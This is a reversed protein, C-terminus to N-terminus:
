VFMQQLLGKKYTKTHEIKQNVIAINKDIASLFNAIKIQEELSPIKVDIDFFDNVGINLLGHNRAGEQAVKEIERNQLGSEFYQEIFDLSAKKNFRFCIYLTSVVGSDYRNLRKIAGMPYGNSYSKNYAFDNKEILYYGTLNKASVSKNFYELQSILGLQASITLVNQNDVKNKTKVREAINSLQHKKWDPFSDGNEDKFRLKQKFIKQIVGKKFQELLSKKKELSQIHNDISSLFNAIKQQEEFPPFNFKLASFDSKNILPVAQVGSLHKINKGKKELLSYIFNNSFDVKATLSNIQQNTIVEVGAQGVKGITSGIAVFLVSGSKVLRGKSFGIETLTTKTNNVYRNTQIDAPSVFLKKGNYYEKVTTSPTNGTIIKAVEHLKKNKWEKNFEKFRLQPELRKRKEM